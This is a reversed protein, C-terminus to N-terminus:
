SARAKLRGEPSKCAARTHWHPRGLASEAASRGARRPLRSVSPAIFLFYLYLGIGELSGSKLENALMLVVTAHLFWTSRSALSAGQPLLLGRVHRLGSLCMWGVILAGLVGLEYFAELFRNHPYPKYHHLDFAGLGHGSPDERIGAIALAALDTRSRVMRGDAAAVWYGRVTETIVLDHYHRVIMAIGLGFVIAVAALSVLKRKKGWFRTLAFLSLMILHARQRLLLVSFFLALSLWPLWIFDRGKWPVMELVLIMALSVVLSLAITCFLEEGDFSSAIEATQGLFFRRYTALTGLGILGCVFIAWWTGRLFPLRLRSSSVLYGLVLVPLSMQLLRALKGDYYDSEFQIRFIEARQVHDAYFFALALLALTLAGLSNRARSYSFLPISAVVVIAVLVTSVVRNHYGFITFARGFCPCLVAFTAVFGQLFYVRALSADPARLLGDASNTTPNTWLGNMDPREPAHAPNRGAAGTM